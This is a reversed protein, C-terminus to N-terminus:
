ALDTEPHCLKRVDVLDRLRHHCRGGRPVDRLHLREPRPSRRRLSPPLVDDRTAPPPSGSASNKWSASPALPAAAKSWLSIALPHFKRSSSPPLPPPRLM